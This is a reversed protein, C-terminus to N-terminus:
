KSRQDCVKVHGDQCGAYVTGNRAVLSLVGGQCASFTHQLVPGSPTCLWLKVDEDGSGTLLDVTGDARPIDGSEELPSPSLAM